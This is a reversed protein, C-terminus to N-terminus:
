PTPYSCPSAYPPTPELTSMTPVEQNLIVPLTAIRLPIDTRQFFDSKYSFHVAPPRQATVNLSDKDGATMLM